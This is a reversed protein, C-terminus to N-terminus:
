FDGQMDSKEILKGSWTAELKKLFDKFDEISQNLSTKKYDQIRIKHINENTDGSLVEKMEMDHKNIESVLKSVIPVSFPNFIDLNKIDIPVCVRGTKPHICFPSKLLHNLGKTVNIDLRPYCLQIMIEAVLNKM